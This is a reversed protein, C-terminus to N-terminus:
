TSFVSVKGLQHSARKILVQSRFLALIWHSQRLNLSTLLKGNIRSRGDSVLEIGNQLRVENHRTTYADIKLDADPVPRRDKDSVVHDDYDKHGGKDWYTCIDDNETADLSCRVWLYYHWFFRGGEPILVADTPVSAPRKVDGLSKLMHRHIEATCARTHFLDGEYGQDFHVEKSDSTMVWISHDDYRVPIPKGQNASLQHYYERWDRGMKREGVLIKGDAQVCIYMSETNFPGCDYHCWDYNVAELLEGSQYSSRSDGMLRSGFLLLTM